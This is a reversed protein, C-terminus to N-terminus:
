LSGGSVLMTDGVAKAFGPDGKLFTPMFVSWDLAPTGPM